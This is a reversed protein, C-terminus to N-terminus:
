LGRLRTFTFSTQDNTTGGAINTAGSISTVTFKVKETLAGIRITEERAGGLTASTGSAHNGVWADLARTDWNSGDYYRVGLAVNDAAAVSTVFAWLISWWGTSPFTFVGSAITMGTGLLTFGNATVRSLNATIDGSASVTATLVWRDIETVGATGSSLDPITVTGTTGVTLAADGGEDQLVLSGGSTPKIILNAM